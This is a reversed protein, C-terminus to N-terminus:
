RDYAPADDRGGLTYELLMPGEDGDPSVHGDVLVGVMSPGVDTGPIRRAYPANPAPEFARIPGVGLARQEARSLGDTEAEGVGRAFGGLRRKAVWGSEIDSVNSWYGYRARLDLAGVLALRPQATAGRTFNSPEVRWPGLGGPPPSIPRRGLKAALLRITVVPAAFDARLFAFSSWARVALSAAELTANAPELGEATPEALQLVLPRADHLHPAEPGEVYADFLRSSGLHM